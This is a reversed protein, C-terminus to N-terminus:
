RMKMNESKTHKVRWEFAWISMIWHLALWRLCFFVQFWKLLHVFVIFNHLVKSLLSIFHNNNQMKWICHGSFTSKFTMEIVKIRLKVWMMKLIMKWIWKWNTIQCLASCNTSNDASKVLFYKAHISSNYNFRFMCNLDFYTTMDLLCHSPLLCICVPSARLNWQCQKANNARTM